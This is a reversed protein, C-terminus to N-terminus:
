GYAPRKGGGGALWPPFRFKRKEEVAPAGGDPPGLDPFEGSRDKLHNVAKWFDLIKGHERGLSLMIEFRGLGGFVGLPHFRGSHDATRLVNGLHYVPAGAKRSLYIRRKINQDIQKQDMGEACPTVRYTGDEEVLYSQIQRTEYYLRLARETTMFDFYAKVAGDMREYPLSRSAIRGRRAKDHLRLEVHQEDVSGFVAALSPETQIVPWAAYFQFDTLLVFNDANEHIAMRREREIKNNMDRFAARKSM